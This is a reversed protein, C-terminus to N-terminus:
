EQEKEWECFSIGKNDKDSIILDHMPWSINLTSDNWIICREDSPSYYETTKYVFETNDELAIFGHACGEPIWLQRRNASSLDFGEWQKYTPSDKRLDVIMDFVSGNICRVLKGQEKPKVQFHLGRLVGKHSLSHNDQCFTKKKGITEEFSRHNFSEYFFGRSDSFVKPEMLLAEYIKTKIYM